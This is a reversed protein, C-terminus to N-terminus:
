SEEKGIEKSDEEKRLLPSTCKPSSPSLEKQTHTDHEEHHIELNELAMRVRKRSKAAESKAANQAPLLPSEAQKEINDELEDVGTHLFFTSM